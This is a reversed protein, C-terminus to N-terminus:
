RDLHGLFVCIFMNAGDSLPNDVTIKYMMNPNADKMYQLYQPFATYSEEWDGFIKALAKALTSMIKKYSITVHYVEYVMGIIDKPTLDFKRKLSPMVFRSVFKSTANKYTVQLTPNSCAHHAGVTKITFKGLLRKRAYTSFKWPYNNNSPIIENNCM